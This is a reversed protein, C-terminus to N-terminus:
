CAIDVGLSDMWRRTLTIDRHPTAPTKERKRGPYRTIRGVMEQHGAPGQGGSLNGGKAYKTAARLVPDEIYEAIEAFSDTEYHHADVDVIMFDDYRREDAQRVANTLLTRTDFEELSPDRAAPHLMNM